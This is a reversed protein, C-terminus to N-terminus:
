GLGLKRGPVTEWYEPDTWENKCTLCLIWGGYNRVDGFGDRLESALSTGRCLPCLRSRGTLYALAQEYRAIRESDNSARSRALDDNLDVVKVIWALYGPEGLTNAVREIYHM